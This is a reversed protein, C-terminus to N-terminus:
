VVCMCSPLSVEFGKMAWSSQNKQRKSRERSAERSAERSGGAIDDVIVYLMSVGEVHIRRTGTINLLM